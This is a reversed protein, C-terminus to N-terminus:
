PAVPACKLADNGVRGFRIRVLIGAATREITLASLAAALALLAGTVELGEEIGVLLHYPLSTRALEDLQGRIVLGGLAEFGIAGLLFIIGAVILRRRLQRDIRRAIWLVILGVVIAVPVGVSLWAFTFDTDFDFRAFKEHLQAIEDASLVLALAGLAFYPAGRHLEHRAAFGVVALSTGIGALLLGSAWAWLNGEGDAYLLGALGSIGRWIPATNDINERLFHAVLGVVLMAAFVTAAIWLFRRRGTGQDPVTQTDMALSGVTLM